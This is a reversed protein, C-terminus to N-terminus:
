SVISSFKCQSKCQFKSTRRVITVSPLEFNFYEQCLRVTDMNNTQFLKMFFRDVTFDLSRFDAKKLPYTELSYLLIPMCKTKVLQLIVEESAIRGIKGFICNAARYFSRKAQDLSCKFHKARVIYAGLYRMTNVSPFLSGTLSRVSICDIECRPGIRLSCSKKFNIDM